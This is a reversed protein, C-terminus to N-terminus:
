VREWALDKIDEWQKGMKEEDFYMGRASELDIAPFDETGVDNRMFIVNFGFKHAGILRYGKKTLLKDAAAMSLSRFLVEPYPKDMAFHSDSYPITLAETIPIGSHIECIIVRPNASDIADMIYYDTSDIDVSLLDIEGAFGADEIINNINDKTIWSHIFVPQNLVANPHGAFFKKGRKVFKESGDLLLGRWGHYLIFNATNCERGDSAGIEISRKNTTGILSFIYLLIGDEEFQSHVRFGVDALSPRQERPLQKLRNFELVLQKQGIEVQSYALKTLEEIRERQQQQEARVEWFLVSKLSKIINRFM